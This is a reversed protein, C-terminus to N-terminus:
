FETVSNEFSVLNIIPLIQRSSVTSRPIQRNQLALIGVNLRHKGLEQKVNMGNGAKKSLNRSSVAGYLLNEWVFGGSNLDISRAAKDGRNGM